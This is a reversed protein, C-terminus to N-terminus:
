WTYHIADDELELENTEGLWDITVEDPPASFDLQLMLNELGLFRNEDRIQLHDPSQRQRFYNLSGTLELDLTFAEDQYANIRLTKAFPEIRIDGMQSVAWVQGEITLDRADAGDLFGLDITKDLEISWPGDGAGSIEGDETSIGSFALDASTALGLYKDVGGELTYHLTIADEDHDFYLQGNDALDTDWRIDGALSIDGSGHGTLSAYRIQETGPLFHQTYLGFGLQWSPQALVQSNGTNLGLGGFTIGGYTRRRYYIAANSIMDQQRPNLRAWSIEAIAGLQLEQWQWPTSYTEGTSSTDPFDSNTVLTEDYSYGLFMFEGYRSDFRNSPVLQPTGYVLLHYRMFTAFNATYGHLRSVVPRGIATLYSEFTAQNEPPIPVGQSGPFTAALVPPSQAMILTLIILLSCILLLLEYGTSRVTAKGIQM